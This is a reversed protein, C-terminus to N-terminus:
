AFVEFETGALISIQFEKGNKSFNIKNIYPDNAQEFDDILDKKISDMYYTLASINKEQLEQALSKNFKEYIEKYNIM